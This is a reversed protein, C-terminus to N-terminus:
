RSLEIAHKAISIVADHEVQYSYFCDTKEYRWQRSRTPFGPDKAWAMICAMSNPYQGSQM